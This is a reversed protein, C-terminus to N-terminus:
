RKELDDPIDLIPKYKDITPKVLPSSRKMRIDIEDLLQPTVAKKPRNWTCAIDTGVATHRDQHRDTFSWLGFLLAAVHKCAQDDAPCECSSSMINNTDLILWIKYVAHQETERVCVGRVYLFNNDHKYLQVKNVHGDNHLRWGDSLKYNNIMSKSWGNSLLYVIVHPLEVDPLSKLDDEWQRVNDPNILLRGDTTTRRRKLDSERCFDDREIPIKREAANKYLEELEQKRYNNTNVGRERLYKRLEGVTKKRTSSAM